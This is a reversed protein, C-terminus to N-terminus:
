RSGNSERNTYAIHSRLLKGLSFRSSCEIEPNGLDTRLSAMNARVVSPTPWRSFRARHDERRLGILEADTVLDHHEGVPRQHVPEHKEM